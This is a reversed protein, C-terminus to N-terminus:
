EGESSANACADGPHARASGAVLSEAHPQASLDLIAASEDCRRRRRDDADLGHRRRCSYRSSGSWGTECARTCIAAVNARVADAVTRVQAALASSAADTM